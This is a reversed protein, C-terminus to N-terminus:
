PSESVTFNYTNDRDNRRQTARVKNKCARAVKKEFAFRLALGYLMQKTELLQTQASPMSNSAEWADKLM